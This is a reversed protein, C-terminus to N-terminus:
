SKRKVKNDLDYVVLCSSTTYSDRRSESLWSWIRFCFSHKHFLEGGTLVM